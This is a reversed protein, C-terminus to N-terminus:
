ASDLTEKSASTISVQHEIDEWSVTELPTEPERNSKLKGAIVISEREFSM